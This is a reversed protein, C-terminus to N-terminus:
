NTKVRGLDSKVTTFQPAKVGASQRRARLRCRRVRFAGAVSELNIARKQNAILWVLAASAKARLAAIQDHSARNKLTTMM